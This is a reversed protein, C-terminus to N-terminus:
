SNKNRSAPTGNDDLLGLARPITTYRNHICQLRHLLMLKMCDDRAIMFKIFQTSLHPLHHASDNKSCQPCKSDFAYRLLTELLLLEGRSTSPALILIYSHGCKWSFIELEEKLMKLM